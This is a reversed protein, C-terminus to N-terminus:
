NYKKIIILFYIILYITFLIILIKNYNNYNYINQYDISYRINEEEM